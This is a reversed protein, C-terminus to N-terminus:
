VNKPIPARQLAGYLERYKSEVYSFVKEYGYCESLLASKTDISRWGPHNGRHLKMISRLEEVRSDGSNEMLQFLANVQVSLIVKGKLETNSM